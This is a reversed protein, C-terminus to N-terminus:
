QKKISLRELQHLSTSCLDSLLAPGFLPCEDYVDLPILPELGKEENNRSINISKMFDELKNYGLPAQHHDPFCNELVIHCKRLIEQMDESEIHFYDYTVLNSLAYLLRLFDFHIVIHFVTYEDFGYICM